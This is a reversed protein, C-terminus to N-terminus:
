DTLQNKPWTLMSQKRIPEDRRGFSREGAGILIFRASSTRM